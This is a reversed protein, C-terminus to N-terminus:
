NISNLKDSLISILKYQSNLLLQDVENLKFNGTIKSNTRVTGSFTDKKSLSSKNIELYFDLFLDIKKGKEINTINEDYNGLILVISGEFGNVKIKNDFWTNVIVDLNHPLENEIVLQKQVVDFFIEQFNNEAKLSFNIILFFIFPIYFYVIYRVM